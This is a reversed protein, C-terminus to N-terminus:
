EGVGELMKRLEEQRRKEGAIYRIYQRSQKSKKKDLKAASRFSKTASDWRELQMQSIGKWFAVDGPKKLDGKKQADSYATVAEKHRDEAALAQALRFFLDGDEAYRTADRWADIAADTEQSLTYATALLRLNKENEEVSKSKFGKELVQSAEYPNDAGLLRQAVMVIESEKALFGQIYTAYYASLSDDDRGKESYMGALHMWYQKKPYNVILKELLRIVSDVDELENYLVVQLYWWNEKVAPKGQMKQLTLRAEQKQEPTTKADAITANNSQIRDAQRAVAIEEVLIAQKLSERFNELQYYATAKFFTIQPDRVSQLAQFRDIYKIAKLYKEDSYYLQFLARLSSLELAESITGQKLIQEYANVTKPMDELTYYAFALTNWIQAKEYSNLGRSEMLEHLLEVADRATGKPVPAPEGEERPASDPDIMIQAEALKKYTRERMAPVKRTKKTAEAAQAADGVSVGVPIQGIFLPLAWIVALLMLKNLQKMAIM